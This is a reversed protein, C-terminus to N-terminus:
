DIIWTEGSLASLRQLSEIKRGDVGRDHVQNPCEGFDGAAEGQLAAEPMKQEISRSIFM